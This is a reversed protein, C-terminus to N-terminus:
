PQSGAFKTCSWFGPVLFHPCMPAGNACAITTSSPHTFPQNMILIFLLSSPSSSPTIIIIILIIIIIVIIVVVVAIIIIVITIIIIKIIMFLRYLQM